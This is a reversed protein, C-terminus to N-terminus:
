AGMSLLVDTLDVVSRELSKYKLGLIEVSRSHDADYVGGEPFGDNPEEATPLKDALQPYNKRVISAIQNNSFRGAVVFFRKGGAEPRELANVHAEAVDRVDVWLYTGTPPLGDKASGSVVALVRENSTNISDLSQLYPKIPGLVLPPNITAIDFQRHKEQVFDWAASEALKKSARYGSSPDKLGEEYTIPNWDDESYIKDPWTGRKSDIISAFSSTIVIRKVTPAYKQVSELIGKTGHIAPELLQSKPDTVRFHFPSATHLVADFPPDSVVAEDFAGSAAIDKVIVFDLKSKFASHAQLLKDAKEQTRVTGRVSYGRELLIDLVHAAIFGSAGTLLVRPM